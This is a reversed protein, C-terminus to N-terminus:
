WDTSICCRSARHIHVHYTSRNHRMTEKLTQNWLSFARTARSSSAQLWILTHLCPFTRSSRTCSTTLRYRWTVHDPGRHMHTATCQDKTWCRPIVSFTVRIGHRRPGHLEAPHGVLAKLWDLQRDCSSRHATKQLSTRSSSMQSTRRRTYRRQTRM